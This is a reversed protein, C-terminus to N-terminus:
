AFPQPWPNLEEEPCARYGMREPAEYLRPHGTFQARPDLSMPQLDPVVACVATLGAEALEQPTRDVVVPRMGRGDLVSVVRELAEHPDTPLADRGPSWARGESRTLFDFAHSRTGLAMYRSTQGVAGTIDALGAPPETRHFNDEAGVTEMVAKEAAEELTRATGAGVFRSARADEPSSVVCYATPVGLDTTADFVQVRMFRRHYWEVVASLTETCQDRHLPPLPLRQLWMVSITDREIVELLGRLVAEAPDSHVAYGTSISATFREAATLSGLRYCAMIAPIWVPIDRALDLARVWRIRATSDFPVLPCGPAAYEAPSCRPYREPELCDGSLEEATAWLREEGLFDGGAYREAGEAIAVLRALEPSGLTVGRCYLHSDKSLGLAPTGSGVDSGVVHLDGFGEPKAPEFTEALVGFPSVLGEMARLGALPPADAGGM